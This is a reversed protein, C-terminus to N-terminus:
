RGRAATSPRACRAHPPPRSPRRPSPRRRRCPPAAPPCRPRPRSPRAAVRRRRRPSRPRRPPPVAEDGLAAVAASVSPRPGIWGDALDAQPVGTAVLLDRVRQPTLPTGDRAIEASQLAAVAGAVTAAASSTGDFCATYGADGVPSWPADGYGATVVGAGYGQLDVRAGHNSGPVRRRDGTGTEDTGAGGGAVILAGSHGPASPGALWTAAPTALEGLRAIDGGGNGAPEVVVIGKDVAARIAARMEPYVEIPAFPAGGANLGAQLEILIVDGPGLTAAAATVEQWPQYPSIRPSVPVLTADPVLGTVGRGDESAGLVGLVATGHEAARYESPLGSRDGPALARPALEVHGARWEYEIDAITVGAGRDAAGMGLGARYDQFATLDPAAGGATFAPWAPAPRVRCYAPPPAPEVGAEAATGAGQVGAGGAVALAVIGALMAIPGPRM